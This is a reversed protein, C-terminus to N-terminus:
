ACDGQVVTQFDIALPISQNLPGLKNKIVQVKLAYGKVDQRQFLWREKQLLLRLSAYFPLAAEAAYHALAADSAPPLATLVLLACNSKSLPALLRGYALSLREQQGPQTQQALPMDLVLLDLGGNVIFEPMMAVAQQPSYPHVLLLRSLNVGCRHAYDPDFTHLTDLYVATKGVAQVSAILKLALTTMGSTPIGIFETIRGHPIGGSLAVDLAPFGTALRPIKRKNRDAQTGIAQAGFRKQISAITGGLKERKGQQM